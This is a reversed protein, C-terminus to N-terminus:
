TMARPTAASTLARSPALLAAESIPAAAQQQRGLAKREYVGYGIAAVVALAIATAKLRM